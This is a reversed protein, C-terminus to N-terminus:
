LNGFLGAHTTFTSLNYANPDHVKGLNPKGNYFGNQLTHDDKSLNQWFKVESDLHNFAIEQFNKGLKKEVELMFRLASFDSYVTESSEIPYSQIQKKWDKHSLLGWAPLGARHNLLLELERDNMKNAIYTFSNCLPKTLSAYDFIIDSTKLNAQEGFVELHEYTNNKFDLIAIAIADSNSNQVLHKTEDLLNEIM